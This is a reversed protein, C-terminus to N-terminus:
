YAQKAWVAMRSEKDVEEVFEVNWVRAVLDMSLSDTDAVVAVIAAV